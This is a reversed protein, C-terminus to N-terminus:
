ILDLTKMCKSCYRNVHSKIETLCSTLCKSVNTTTTNTSNSTFRTKYPTKHLKPLWYIFPLKNQDPDIDINLDKCTTVHHDM